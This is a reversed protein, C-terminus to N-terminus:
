CKKESLPNLFQRVKFGNTQIVTLALSVSTQM